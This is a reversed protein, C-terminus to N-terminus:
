EYHLKEDWTFTENDWHRRDVISLFFEIRFLTISLKPGAHDSGKYDTSLMIKFWEDVIWMEFELFKNDSIM